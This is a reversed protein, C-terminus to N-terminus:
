KVEWTDGLRLVKGTSGSLVRQLNEWQLRPINREGRLWMYVCSSSVGAFGATRKVNLGHSRMLGKLGEPTM